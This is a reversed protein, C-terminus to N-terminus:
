SPSISKLLEAAQRAFAKDRRKVFAPAHEHEELAKEISERAREVNGLEALRHALAVHHQMRPSSKVVGELVEVSEEDRGAKALAEALDLCGAYDRYARAKDCLRSLVEIAAEPEGLELRCRGLGHLAEPEDKHTALAAEFIEAAEAFEGADHLATALRMKNAYSPTERTEYRLKDVSPPRDFNLLQKLWRLDFDHIKVLFFYVWAGFPVFLVIYWYYQARRQFADVLMWVMFATQLYYLIL